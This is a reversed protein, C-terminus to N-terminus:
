ANAGASARLRGAVVELMRLAIGPHDHILGRFTWATMGLTAVPTTATVTATRPGEDILSIEGFFQGPGVDARKRGGVTVIAHGDIILFFGVGREGERALVTGAPREIIKSASAIEQLERKTCHAFLPVSRLAEIIRASGRASTPAM